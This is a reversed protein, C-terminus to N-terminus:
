KIKKPTCTLITLVIFIDTKSFARQALQRGKMENVKTTRKMDELSFIEITEELNVIHLQTVVNCPISELWDSIRSLQIWHAM